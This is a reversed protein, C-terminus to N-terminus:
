EIGFIKKLEDPILEALESLDQPTTEEIKHFEIRERVKRKAKRRFKSLDYM